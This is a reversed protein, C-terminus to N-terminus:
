YIIVLQPNNGSTNERSDLSITEQNNMKLLLGRNNFLGDVWEQSQATIDWTLWGSTFSGPPPSIGSSEETALAITATNHTAGPTTWKPGSKGRRFDWTTGDANGGGAGVRTGETWTQTVQHATIDKVGGTPNAIGSVFLRLTASQLLTGNPIAGLDFELVTRWDDGPGKIHMDPSRGYNLDAGGKGISADKNPSLTLTTSGPGGSGPPTEGCPLLYSFDIKPHLSATGHDSSTFDVDAMTADPLQLRMGHNPYLGSLWRNAIGTIDWYNWGITATFPATVVPTPEFSSNPAPWANMGDYTGWSAGDANNSKTGEIWSHTLPHISLNQSNLFLNAQEYMGFDAGPQLIANVTDYWPVARSGAPFSSLDFQLLSEQIGTIMKMKGEDGFSSNPKNIDLVTDMGLATGPQLTYTQVGPEYTVINNRTLTVSTSNYTGVSTLTTPPTFLTNGFASYSAGNFDADSIASMQIPYINIMDDCGINQVAYNVAQLGAEAAYRARAIDTQTSIMATNMANDRNMSFAIAAILSMILIVPLLTFGAVRNSRMMKM